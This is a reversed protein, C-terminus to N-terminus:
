PKFEFFDITTEHVIFRREDTLLVFKFSGGLSIERTETSFLNLFTLKDAVPYYLEEGLFNFYTLQPASITKILKGMGNFIHIGKQKDLLFVFGQYERLTTVSLFDTSIGEPLKVDVLLSSKRPEIKKLTRDAADVIWLNHDGSSCVLWPEIVFASDINYTSTAEFSPNMYDIRRENKFYAFLRSGDRPEFLTPSPRNKYVSLLKGNVDFKQIEGGKTEIYLEGVRDVTAQIIEDRVEVTSIKKQAYTPVTLILFYLIFRM